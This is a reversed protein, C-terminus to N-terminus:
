LLTREVVFVDLDHFSQIQPVYQDNDPSSFILKCKSPLLPVLYAYWEPNSEVSVVQKARSSWFLTSLGAGWESVTKDSYDFQTLFDIAPYTFWPLANGEKDFTKGSRFSKLWGYQVLLGRLLQGIPRIRTPIWKLM